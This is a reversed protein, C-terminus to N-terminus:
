SARKLPRKAGRRASKAGKRKAPKPSSVPPAAARKAKAPHGSEIVRTVVRFVRQAMKDDLVYAGLYRQTYARASELGDVDVQLTHCTLYAILEAEVENICHKDSHSHDLLIHGLEHFTTKYPFKAFPNIALLKKDPISYGQTNGDFDQFSTETVELTALARARDWDPLPEAEWPPGQWDEMPDTQAYVFWRALYKFIVYPDAGEPIPNGQRDKYIPIPMCLVLAKEGQRVHRGREKWTNYTSIPGVELKRLHCQIQALQQNGFSYNYFARYGDHLKGPRMVAQMLIESWGPYTQDTGPIFESLDTM